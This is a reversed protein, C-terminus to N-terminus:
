ARLREALLTPLEALGAIEVVGSAEAAAAEEDSPVAGLRNLWIGLLGARAAGVADTILRDGVYAAATVPADAGFVELAHRFIAADPKTVGVAGSAIVHAFRGPLELRVIKATQFELEGNTIIGFRVGPVSREIGDLAPLADAHLSWSERYREFYASFWTGAAEDDLEVGHAAAFDRARARRQAEFTLEGALYSHYHREELEYWLRQMAEADPAPAYGLDDAHRVIGAEVAERHAMLTDDLDFLVVPAPVRVDGRPENM